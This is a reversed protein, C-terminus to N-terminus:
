RFLVVRVVKKNMNQKGGFKRDLKYYGGYFHKDKSLLEAEGCGERKYFRTYNKKRKTKLSM